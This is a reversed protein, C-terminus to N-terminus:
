GVKRFPSVAANHVQAVLLRSILTRLAEALPLSRWERGGNDFSESGRGLGPQSEGAGGSAVCRQLQSLSISARYQLQRILNRSIVFLLLIKRHAFQL